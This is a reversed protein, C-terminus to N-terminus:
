CTRIEGNTVFGHWACGGLILISPSLTLDDLGTGHAEWRVPQGKDNKTMVSDPANGHRFFVWVMHTGKPGGNDAFCKPCLFEVGDAGVFEMQKHLVDIEFGGWQTTGDPLPRGHYEEAIGVRHDLFRAELDTLKM